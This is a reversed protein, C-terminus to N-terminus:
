KHRISLNVDKLIGEVVESNMSPFPIVPAPIDSVKLVKDMSILDRWAGLKFGTKEYIGITQFGYKKHFRVSKENPYVILAYLKHFGQETLLTILTDYLKAAIGENHYDPHVYISAEVDWQFAARTRFTSGYAYGVIKNNIRYVLYPHKEQIGRIREEFEALSPVTYEFTIATTEIFPQYIALIEKADSPCALEIIHSM